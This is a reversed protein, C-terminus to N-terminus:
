RPVVRLHSRQDMLSTIVHRFMGVTAIKTWQRERRSKHYSSQFEEIICNQDLEFLESATM